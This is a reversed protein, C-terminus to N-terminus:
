PNKEYYFRIVGVLISNDSVFIFYEQVCKVIAKGNLKCIVTFTHSIDITKLTFQFDMITYEKSKLSQSLLQERPLYDPYGNSTEKPLM